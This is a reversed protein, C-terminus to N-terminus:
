QDSDFHIKKQFQAPDTRKYYICVFTAMTILIAALLVTNINFGYQILGTTEETGTQGLLGVMGNGYESSESSSDCSGKQCSKSDEGACEAICKNRYEDGDCCIPKEKDKKCDCTDQCEGYECAVLDEDACNANCVNGYTTGDCCVPIYEYTCMCEDECTGSTCDTKSAVEASCPNPFEEGDCCQPDYEMTCIKPCEGSTCQGSSFGACDAACQNDYQNGQCCVPDLILPCACVAECQGYSCGILEGADKVCAATCPNSFQEDKNEGCCVPNFERTCMCVNDDCSGKECVGRGDCDAECQNGYTDDNECCVPDYVMTCVCDMNSEAFVSNASSTCEKGDADVCKKGKQTCGDACTKQEKDKGNGSDKDEESAEEESESAEIGQRDDDYDDGQGESCPKGSCGSAGACEAECSNGYEKGNCCTPQFIMACACVPCEGYYCALLESESRECHAQCPNGYTVDTDKPPPAYENGRCCVPNWEKTCTCTQCEGAECNKGGEAEAVCPNAYDVGECCQPDYELTCGYGPDEPDCYNCDILEASTLGDCEAGCPNSYEKDLKPCCVPRYELTCVCQDPCAGTSCDQAGECDAECQNSYEKGGCCVPAYVMNCMCVPCTGYGCGIPDEANGNEDKGYGFECVNNYERYDKADDPALGPQKPDPCCVPNYEQTCAQGGSSDSSGKSLIFASLLFLAIM